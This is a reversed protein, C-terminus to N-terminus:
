HYERLVIAIIQLADDSYLDEALHCAYHYNGAQANLKASIKFIKVKNKNNNSMKKAIEDAQTSIKIVKEMDDLKALAEAFLIISM